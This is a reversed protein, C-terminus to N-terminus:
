KIGASKLEAEVGVMIERRALGSEKAAAVFAKLTSTYKQEKAEPKSSKPNKQTDKTRERAVKLTIKGDKLEQLVEENNFIKKMRSYQSQASEYNIGRAQMMSAVVTARDLQKEQILEVLQVFIEEAEQVKEDYSEFLGVLEENATAEEAAAAGTKAKVKAGPKAQAEEEEEEEEAASPGSESRGATKKLLSSKKLVKKIAMTTPNAPKNQNTIQLTAFTSGQKMM